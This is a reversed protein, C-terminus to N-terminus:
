IQPGAAVVVHRQVQGRLSSESATREEESVEGRSSPIMPDVPAGPCFIAATYAAMAHSGPHRGRQRYLDSFYCDGLDAAWGM